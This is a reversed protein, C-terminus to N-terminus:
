SKLKPKFLLAFHDASSLSDIFLSSHHALTTQLSSSLPKPFEISNLDDFSITHMQSPLLTSFHALIDLCLPDELRYEKSEVLTKLLSLPVQEEFDDTQYISIIQKLQLMSLLSCVQDRIEKNVIMTKNLSLVSAVQSLHELEKDCNGLWDKNEPKKVWQRLESIKMKIDYGKNMSCLDRRLVVENFAMANIFYYLQHFVFQVLCNPTHNQILSNLVKTLLALIKKVFVDGKVEELFGHILPKLSTQIHEMFTHYVRVFSSELSDSIIIKTDMNIPDEQKSIKKELYVLLSLSSLWYSLMGIDDRYSAFALIKVISDGAFLSISPSLQSLSHNIPDNMFCRYIAFPFIPINNCFISFPEDKFNTLIRNIILEILTRSGKEDDGGVERIIGNKLAIEPPGDERFSPSKHLIPLNVPRGQKRCEERWKEKLDELERKMARNENQLKEMEVAVKPNTSNATILNSSSEVRKARREEEMKAIRQKVREEAEKRRKLLAEEEIAASLQKKEEEIKKKEEEMKKLYTKTEAERELLSAFSKKLEELESNKALAKEREKARKMEERRQEEHQRTLQSIQKSKEELQNKLKNIEVEKQANEEELKEKEEEFKNREELYKKGQQIDREKREMSRELRTKVLIESALKWELEEIKKELQTKQSLIKNLSRAEIRLETLQKKAMKGRWRTQILVIWRRQQVFFKQDKHARIFRQLNLVSKEIQMDSINRRANHARIATQLVLAANKTENHRKQLVFMRLSKQIKTAAANRRLNKANLKSLTIRIVTQLVLACQQMVKFERKQKRGRWVKQINVASSNMLDTRVKELKALQGARLFLKTTGLQYEANNVKLHSLILECMAKPNLPKGSKSSDIISKAALLKYRPAFSEYTKRTPYGAKTIRICELIGGSRLQGLVLLKDFVLPKKQTNPKICRIYHPSTTKINDMLQNLSERFQSGVSIFQSSKNGGAGPGKGSTSVTTKKWFNAFLNKIFSNKSSEMISIHEPVIFDKNKDIFSDTDYTVKGAYHSVTFLTNGWRPKEFYKSSITNPKNFTSYFKESLTQSTAKPFISQEDLLTFICIPKKELLDLCDQNDAFQIYSWDIKEKEYEIQELKFIHQNFHQQLKENAYNICLQEFSNNEFVEFGYIDLVGIYSKFPKKAEISLNIRQVLWDFLRSYLLMSLADRTNSAKDTTLPVDYSESGATIRKNILYKELVSKECGLMQTVQDIADWKQSSPQPAVRSAETNSPDVEFSVNGLSMIASITSFVDNEEEATIGVTNMATKTHLFQEEDSTEDVTMCGSQSTFFYNEVTDLKYKRKEEDTAGKCLQYFIHYNRENSAQRVIRSKELLYTRIKAGVIIGNPDMQIEIFKGFRSSNDNRITKANGFAELLPTTQIVKREINDSSNCQSSESKEGMAAFYQLLHKTTETKGAGSEGSVLISQNSGDILM